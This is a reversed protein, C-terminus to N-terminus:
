KTQFPLTIESIFQENESRYTYSHHEGYLQKLRNSVNKIGIGYGQKKEGNLTGTDNMVSIRLHKEGNLDMLQASILIEGGDPRKSIGHKIANEVIPQLLLAPVEAELSEEHIQYNLVLRDQFRTHEIDLYAKIYEMEHRFSIEHKQDNELLERMLFGLQSLIKQAKQTDFDILSTISNLTNFLFHPNIQMKLASLRAASLEKQQNTYYTYYSIALILLMIVWYELFSSFIGAGLAVRNGPDFFARFVGYKLYFMLDFLSVAVIRHVVSILISYFLLRALRTWPLGQFTFHQSQKLIPRLFPVWLFYNILNKTTVTFWSFEYAYGNILHDTYQRLILVISVGSALLLAHSSKFTVGKM